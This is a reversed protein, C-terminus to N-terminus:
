GRSDRAGSALAKAGLERDESKVPEVPVRSLSDGREFGFQEQSEGVAPYEPWFEQSEERPPSYVDMGAEQGPM